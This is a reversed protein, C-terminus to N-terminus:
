KVMKMNVNKKGTFLITKDPYYVNNNIVQADKKVCITIESCEGFSNLSVLISFLPLLLKKM